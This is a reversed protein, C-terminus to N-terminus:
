PNVRDGASGSTPPTSVFELLDKDMLKFKTSLKWSLYNDPGKLKIGRLSEDGDDSMDFSRSDLM